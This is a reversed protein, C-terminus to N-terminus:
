FNQDCFVWKPYAYFFLWKPCTTKFMDMTIPGHVKQHPMPQCKKSTMEVLVKQSTM